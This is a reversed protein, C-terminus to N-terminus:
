VTRQNQIHALSAVRYEASGIAGSPALTDDYRESMVTRKGCRWQTKTLMRLHLLQKLLTKISGNPVSIDSVTKAPAVVRQDSHISENVFNIGAITSAFISYWVRPNWEIIYIDGTAAEQIADIHAIGDYNCSKTLVSAAEYLATNKIFAYHDAHFQQITYAAITGKRALISIDIERGIILEQVLLPSYDLDPLRDLSAQDKISHIGLSGMSNHPKIIIPFSMVGQMVHNRVESINDCLWTQPTRVNHQTCFNFFQWKDDLMDFSNATPLCSTPVALKSRLAILLRTSIVDSPLIIDANVQKAYAEIEHLIKHLDGQAIDTSLERYDYCHRSHSLGMACSQGLVFCRYGAQEAARLIHYQQRCAFAVIVARKM